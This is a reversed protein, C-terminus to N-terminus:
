LLNINNLFEDKYIKGIPIIKDTICVTEHDFTNINNINIIYSRHVRLFSDNLKSIIDNMSKRVLYKKEATHIEVYVHDSQIYLIDDFKVKVFSQNQKIFFANKQVIPSGTKDSKQFNSLAIEISTYLDNKAFPKVLYAAPSVEKVRDITKEDSFSTLFIFPIKYKENIVKAIDIGDRKGSLHIDLLVLDPRFEEITTLAESYSIAPEYVKYGCETLTDCINDAIIIEDEVVVIKVSNM